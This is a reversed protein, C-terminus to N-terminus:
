LDNKLQEQYTNFESELSSLISKVEDAKYKQYGVFVLYYATKGMKGYDLNLKCNIGTIVISTDNNQPVIWIDNQFYDPKCSWGLAEVNNEKITNDIFSYSDMNLEQHFIDALGDAQPQGYKSILSERVAEYKGEQTTSVQLCYTAAALKSDEKSFHYTILAGKVGAIQGTVTLQKHEHIKSCNFIDAEGADEITVDFGADKELQSVEDMTMDFSVGSHITFAEGCASCSLCLVVLFVFLSVMKKM